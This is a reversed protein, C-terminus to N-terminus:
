GIEMEKGYDPSKTSALIKKARSLIIKVTGIIGHKTIFRVVFTVSALRRINKRFNVRYVKVLFERRFQQLEAPTFEKTQILGVNRASALNRPTLQKTALGQDSVIDHLETGLLPM